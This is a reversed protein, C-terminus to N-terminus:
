LHEIKPMGRALEDVPVWPEKPPKMLNSSYPCKWLEWEFDQVEDEDVTEYDSDEDRPNYPRGM